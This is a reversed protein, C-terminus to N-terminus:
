LSKSPRRCRGPPRARMENAPLSLVVEAGEAAIWDEDIGAFITRALYPALTGREVLSRLIYHGCKGETLEVALLRSDILGAVLRAYIRDRRKDTAYCLLIRSRVGERAARWTMYLREMDVLTHPYRRSHFRGGVCVALEAGLRHGALVAAHGGASCGLTRIRQYANVPESDALWELVETVNKGLSPVGRRYGDRLPESIVLLDYSSAETHQMLVANPMMLQRAGSGAFCIVLTKDAPSGPGVFHRVTPKIRRAVFPEPRRKGSDRMMKRTSQLWRGVADHFKTAASAPVLRGDLYRDFLAEIEMPTLRYGLMTLARNLRAVTDRIRFIREFLRLTRPAVEEAKTTPERDGSPAPDFPIPEIAPKPSSAASVLDGISDFARLEEPTLVLDYEVELMVLLEMRALSDLGLESLRVDRESREIAALVGPRSRISGVSRLASALSGRVRDSRASLSMSARRDIKGVANRPIADVVTFRRPCRAGAHRRVFKKLASLNSGADTEFVVLAVPIQGHVVSPEPLVVADAVGPFRRIQSEIDQPHINMSNFVFADDARGRLHIRNQDDLYGIDGTHFWGNELRAATRRPDDLYGRFMGECRVALEGLEGVAVPKRDPTVARVEIGSLPRGVSEGADRDEPETFAIAGTETTGYGARLDHTIRSRLERRLPLPVHSGGLKLRIGSLTSVGPTALLEQAQFASVHLVDVRLSHLQEVLSQQRADPFVNTAGVAVCYLRHRKAFNHEMSALCAFREDSSGVHRHAQDVLDGDHLIVLKPDGTTGSTSFLIRAQAPPANTTELAPDDSAMCPDTILGLDVLHTAGCRRVIAERSAKEEHSPVTFSTAGLQVAALCAFLHRPDDVCHIGVISRNSVGAEVLARAQRRVLRALQAYSLTLSPTVVADRSPDTEAHHWLRGILSTSTPM